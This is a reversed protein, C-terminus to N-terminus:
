ARGASADTRAVVILTPAAQKMAKIKAGNGQDSRATQWKFARMKKPAAPRRNSRSSRLKLCRGPPEPPM